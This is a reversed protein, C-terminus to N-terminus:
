ADKELEFDELTNDEKVIKNLSKEAEKLKKDCEKALEMAKNFEAISDDLSIEGNELKSVISELEELNQEFTKVKKEAM